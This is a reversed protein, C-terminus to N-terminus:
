IDFLNHKLAYIVIGALNKSGTKEQIRERHSEVTRVSLRIKAAIEKNTLQHCILQMVELERSSFTVPEKKRGPQVKCEAILQALKRSTEKSYYSNGQFVAHVAAHLEQRTTNKLLYGSAGAELMDVIYHEDNFTSLAIVATAPFLKKINRCTEVGGMEPMQIDTIAIDPSEKEVVELLLKGNGAEGVLEIDTQNKLLLKFGNRFIEHDDAIVIRISM